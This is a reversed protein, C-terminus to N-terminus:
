GGLVWRGGGLVELVQGVLAGRPGLLNKQFGVLDRLLQSQVVFRQILRHLPPLHLRSAVSLNLAEAPPTANYLAQPALNTRIGNESVSAPIIQSFITM